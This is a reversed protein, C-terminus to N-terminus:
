DNVKDVSTERVKNLLSGKGKYVEIKDLQRYVKINDDVQKRLMDALEVSPINKYEEPMIPTGFKVFVPYRKLYSKISFIRFTGYITVPVIPVNSMYGIKVSGGKFELCKSTPIKNRTGEAFIAINPKNEDKIMSVIARIEGIQNMINSRDLPIGEISKLGKGIFPMKMTEKKAAFTIPQNYLTVLLLPDLDSLHNSIFLSKGKLNNVTELGEVHIDVHFCKILYAMLKRINKYRTELPYKEPHKSYRLFYWFYFHIIAIGGTFIVRLYQFIKKMFM